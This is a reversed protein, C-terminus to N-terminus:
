RYFARKLHKKLWEPFRTTWHAEERMREAILERTSKFSMEGRAGPPIVPVDEPAWQDFINEDKKPSTHAM